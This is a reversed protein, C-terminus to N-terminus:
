KASVTGSGKQKRHKLWEIAIAEFLLTFRSGDEAWPLKVVRPGHEPCDSRPALAHLVTKYQCTDLHRWQREPQHDFLTCAKQCEPCPWEVKEDHELYVHIVGENLQLDVRAVYWPSEIGLIQRYLERDQM